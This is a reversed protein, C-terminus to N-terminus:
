LKDSGRDSRTASFFTLLVISFPMRDKEDRSGFFHQWLISGPVFGHVTATKFYDQQLEGRKELWYPLKRYFHFYAVCVSLWSKVEGSFLFRLGALGDLFLRLLLIPILSAEPYNKTVTALSNRFNYYYKGPDGMALTGGGWHHVVAEPCYRIEYGMRQLRWCLDIEEMHMDFAEDFGGSRIFLDNRICMAAGSAWFIPYPLADYQGTDKEISDLIRGRCWPYGLRDLMGGAAGAYDFYEPKRDSLIKPQVAALKPFAEFLAIQPHLWNESVRVDNNLFVLFDGCAQEAARNNGRCFGLNEDFRIIKIQPFNKSVWETSEDESANDALILELNPYRTAAVSPLYKKLHHLGNWNLVIVSVLPYSNM